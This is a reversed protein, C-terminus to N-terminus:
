STREKKATKEQLLVLGWPGAQILSASQRGTINAYMQDRSGRQFAQWCWCLPICVNLCGICSDQGELWVCHLLVFLCSCCLSIYVTCLYTWYMLCSLINFASMSSAQMSFVCICLLDTTLYPFTKSEEEYSPPHTTRWVWSSIKWGFLGGSRVALAIHSCYQIHTHENLGNLDKLLLPQIYNSFDKWVDARKVLLVLFEVNALKLVCTWTKTSSRWSFIAELVDERNVFLILVLNGWYFSGM